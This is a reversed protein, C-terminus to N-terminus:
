QKELRKVLDDFSEGSTPSSTTNRAAAAEPVSKHEILVFSVHWCGVDDDINLSSFKAQRIRLAMALGHVVLYPVADGASDRAEVMETLTQLRAYHQKQLSFSVHLKKPKVGKEARDTSDTNGSLDDSPTEVTASVQGDFGADHLRFGPVIYAGILM